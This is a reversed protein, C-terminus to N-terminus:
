QEGGLGFRRLVESDAVIRGRITVQVLEDCHPCYAEVTSELHETGEEIVFSKEFVHQPDYACEVTYTIKKQKKM